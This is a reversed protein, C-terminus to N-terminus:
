PNVPPVIIPQAPTVSPATSEAVPTPEPADDPTTTPEEAPPTAEPQAGGPNMLRERELRRAEELQQERLVAPSVSTTIPQIDTPITDPEKNSLMYAMAIVLSIILLGILILLNKVMNSKAPPAMATRPAIDDGSANITEAGKKPKTPTKEREKEKAKEKAKAEAKGKPAPTNRDDGKGPAGSAASVKPVADSSRGTPKPTIFDAGTYLASSSDRSRFDLISALSMSSDKLAKLLDDCFERVTQYRDARDPAMARFLVADVPVPINNNAESPPTISDEGPISRTMMKYFTVGLAYIDARSDVDDPTASQEPSMYWSTGLARTEVGEGFGTDAGIIHSIGFDSLKIRKERDILINSPKIDLHIVGRKHVYELSDRCAQVVDRWDATTLTNDIIKQDLTEGDIFEMVFYYRRDMHGRDIIAVINPHSLNALAGAEREFRIVFEQDDAFRDHLVKVAVHRNLSMQKARYVVAMGGRGVVDIIEYSRQLLEGPPLLEEGPDVHGPAEPKGSGPTHSGENM